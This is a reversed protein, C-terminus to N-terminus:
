LKLISFQIKVKFIFLHVLLVIFFYCFFICPSLVYFAVLLCRAWFFPFYKELLTLVIFVDNQYYRMNIFICLFATLSLFVALFLHLTLTRFSSSFRQRSTKPVPMSIKKLSQFYKQINVELKVVAVLVM